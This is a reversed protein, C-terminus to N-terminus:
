YTSKFRTSQPHSTGLIAKAMNAEGKEKTPISLADRENPKTGRGLRGEENIGEM